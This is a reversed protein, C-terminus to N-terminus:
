RVRLLHGRVADSAGLRNELQGVADQFAAERTPPHPDRAQITAKHAENDWTYFLRMPASTPASDPGPFLADLARDREAPKADHAAGLLAADAEIAKRVAAMSFGHTPIHALSARLLPTAASGSAAM